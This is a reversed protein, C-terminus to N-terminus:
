EFFLGPPWLVEFIGEFLGWVLVFAGAGMLISMWWKERGDIYTYLLVFLPLGYIIGLLWVIVAAGAFWGFFTVTRTIEIRRELEGGMATEDMEVGKAAIRSEWGTIDRFLQTSALLIGPIAGIYVPM